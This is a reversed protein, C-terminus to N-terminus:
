SLVTPLFELFNHVSLKMPLQPSSSKKCNLYTYISLTYSGLNLTRTYSSPKENGGKVKHECQLGCANTLPVGVGLFWANKTCLFQVIDDTSEWVFCHLEAFCQCLQLLSNSPYSWLLCGAQTANHACPTCVVGSDCSLGWSAYVNIFNVTVYM